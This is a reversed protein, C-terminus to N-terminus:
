MHVLVMQVGSAFLFHRFLAWELQETILLFFVAVTDAFLLHVCITGVKRHEPCSIVGVTWINKNLETGSSV